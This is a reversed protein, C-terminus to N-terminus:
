VPLHIHPFTPRQYASEDILYVDARRPRLINVTNIKIWTTHLLFKFPNERIQVVELLM